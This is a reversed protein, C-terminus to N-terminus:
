GGRVERLFARLGEAEQEFNKKVQAVVYREAMGGILSVKIVVEGDIVRRVKGGVETLSYTGQSRFRDHWREPINPLIRYELRHLERDYTSEEVWELMEPKLKGRAFAPVETQPVSRVRRRVRKGDDHRELEEIKKLGDMTRGLMDYLRPDLLAKEFNVLDTDFTHVLEFKM